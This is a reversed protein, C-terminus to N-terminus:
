MTEGRRRSVKREEGERWGVDGPVRYEIQRSVPVNWSRASVGLRSAGLSAGSSDNSFM